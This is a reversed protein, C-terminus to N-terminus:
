QITEEKEIVGFTLKIKELLPKLEKVLRFYQYGFWIARTLIFLESITIIVLCIQILRM